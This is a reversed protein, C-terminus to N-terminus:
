KEPPPLIPPTQKDGGFIRDWMNKSMNQVELRKILMSPAIVSVPVWGSEAGCKGNWAETDNGFAVIEKLISLPTGIVEVPKVLTEEGTKVDVKYVMKPITKFAQFTSFASTATLGGRSGRFILYFDQGQVIAEKKALEKLEELPITKEPMLMTNSMRAIPDQSFDTRGHGNSNKFGPIPKRSRMYDKLVGKEILIVKQGLVGEDDFMYHGNLSKGNFRSLTPDDILTVLDSTIKQNLKNKFTEGSSQSIQREGELRHGIVEHWFVGSNDSDLIAPVAVPGLKPANKLERLEQLIELSMEKLQEETPMEEPTRYQVIRFTGLIEGKETLMQAQVFANYFTTSHVLKTGESNIFYKTLKEGKVMITSGMIDKEDAFENSVKKVIEELDKKQELKIDNGMCVSANEKSFDNLGKLEEDEINNIKAAKKHYYKQEADKIAADSILWLVRKINYPKNEYTGGISYGVAENSYDGIRIESRLIISDKEEKESTGYSGIIGFSEKQLASFSMYYPDQYGQMRLKDKNRQFEQEMAEFIVKREGDLKDECNYFESSQGYKIPEQPKEFSNATACGNAGFLAILGSLALTKLNM